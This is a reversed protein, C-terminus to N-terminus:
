KGKRSALDIDEAKSRGTGHWFLAYKENLCAGFGNQEFFEPTSTVVLVQRIHRREAEATAAECLMRGYGLGRSTHKVALSRLEAIKNSYIELCCCGAIEGNDEVVWMMDILELMEQDTRPLLKDTNAKILAQINPIDAPNAKRLIGTEVNTETM